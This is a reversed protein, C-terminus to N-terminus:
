ELAFCLHIVHGSWLQRGGKFLLDLVLTVYTAELIASRVQAVPTHGVVKGGSSVSSM